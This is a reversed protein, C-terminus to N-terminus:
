CDSSATTKKKCKRVIEIIFLLLSYCVAYIPAMVWTTLPTDDLLPTYIHFADSLGLCGILFAGLSLYCTFGFLTCYWKKYTVHVQKFLLLAVVLTASLSHHVLGSITPLYFITPGQGIFAPYVVTSIGGFLGLIWLFHYVCNDKKGFLVALSLVLSTLGCYSEPIVEVWRVTEYRFVQSLRNTLISVFLAFALSKLVISQAKETKAFKKACVLGVIALALTIGIYTFHEIGYLKAPM